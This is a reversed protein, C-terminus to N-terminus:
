GGFMRLANATTAQAVEQATAGKIQAIRECILPLYASENRKGRHPAPTLYPADTELVIQGLPIRSVIDEMGGNKFTVVGGFGFLFDGFSAIAEYDDYDGSFSHMIGRIGKGAWASLAARMEPWADRTHIVLPLGYELSMDVQRGFVELQRGFYDRSWYLDLGVEGVAYFRPGKGAAARALYDGVIALEERYHPNDNVSTPHLGMMPFCAGPYERCMALMAEHSGSDIAPLYMRGVGAAAARAVAEHREGDFAGDYLHTHTDILFIDDM